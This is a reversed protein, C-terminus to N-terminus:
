FLLKLRLLWCEQKALNFQTDARFDLMLDFNGFIRFILRFWQERLELWSIQETSVFQTEIEYRFVRSERVAFIEVESLQLALM